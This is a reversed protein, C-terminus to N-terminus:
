RYYRHESVGIKWCAARSSAGQGQLVEGERLVQIAKEVNERKM